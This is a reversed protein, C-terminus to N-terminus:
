GKGQPDTRSFSRAALGITGFKIVAIWGAQLSADSGERSPVCRQLPTQTQVTLM